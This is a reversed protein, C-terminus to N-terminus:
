ISCIKEALLIHKLESMHRKNGLLEMFLRTNSLATHRDIKFGKKDEDITLMVNCRDILDDSVDNDAFVLVKMGKM